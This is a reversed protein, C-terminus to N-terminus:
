GNPNENYGTIASYLENVEDIQEPIEQLTYNAETLETTLSSQQATIYEEENSIDTELGSETSSNSSIALSLVGSTSSTGLNDLVTSLNDGFSNYTGSPELFNIVDEYNSDLVSELTSSDLSLTGDSNATIGLQVLSTIANSQSSSFTIGASTTADTLNSSNVTIAGATGSTASALSLVATTGSTIITATVSIGASNIASALDALTGGSPVDVETASGSGVQITLSGSLTDSTGITSTSGVANAAQTYNLADYLSEQLTAVTPNGYLPEANGSSDTGEQANLDSVVTNYASVFTELASEVASDDNTIEVQVTENANYGLLQFTVGPIGDTVMNSASSQTIGNITFLADQGPEGETFNVATGSADTLSGGVAIQGAAGTTNSQLALEEGSTSNVVSATVGYNGANIASALSSLTDNTSDITITQTSGSGVSLTLTGGTALTDTSSLASSYYSSTQALQDVVVAYTGAVATDDASTLELISTDSSSGEKGALVGEFDTLDSLASSLTSLDSGITSLVTDQSELSTLQTQWPDEVERLNAVIQSVTSSVDFGQGSTPSGFSIGVTSM